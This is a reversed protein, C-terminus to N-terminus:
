FFFFYSPLLLCLLFSLFVIDEKEKEEKRKRQLLHKKMRKSKERERHWCDTLLPWSHQGAQASSTQRETLMPDRARQSEELGGDLCPSAPQSTDLNAVLEWEFASNYSAWFSVIALNLHRWGVVELVVVVVASCRLLSTAAITCTSYSSTLTLEKKERKENKLEREFGKLSSKKGERRRRREKKPGKEWSFINQFPLECTSSSNACGDQMSYSFHNNCPMLLNQSFFSNLRCFGPCGKKWSVSESKEMRFM